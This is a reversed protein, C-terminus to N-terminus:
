LGVQSVQKVSKNEEILFLTLIRFLVLMRSHLFYIVGICLYNLYKNIHQLKYEAITNSNSMIVDSNHLM